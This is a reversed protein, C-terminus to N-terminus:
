EAKGVVAFIFLPINLGLKRDVIITQMLLVLKPKYGLIRILMEASEKGAAATDKSLLFIAVELHGTKLLCNKTVNVAVNKTAEKGLSICQNTPAPTPAPRVQADMMPANRHLTDIPKVASPSLTVLSLALLLKLM